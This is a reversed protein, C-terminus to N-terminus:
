ASPDAIQSESLWSIVLDYGLTLIVPGLFLGLIGNTLTGGLVGLLIVVMPVPLGRAMLIPKLINDIVLAMGMWLTYLLAMVPGLSAWAYIITPIVIIGPGIQIIALGLCLPILLGAGPIHAAIMGLGVLLTQLAAVGLVGQIVNRLTNASLQLIAVGRGPDLRQALRTLGAELPRHRMICVGAVLVSLLFQLSSLGLNAALELTQKGLQELQPRFRLALEPLNQWAQQWLSYVSEGILPWQQVRADPDPVIHGDRALDHILAHTNSVVQTAMISIPGVLLLVGVLTLLLAALRSRGGLRQRLWGYVPYLAIALIGGWLLVGLFPRIIEFCWALLIGALFLRIFQDISQSPIPSM